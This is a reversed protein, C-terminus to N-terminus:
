LTQGSDRELVIREMKVKAAPLTNRYVGHPIRDETGDVKADQEMKHLKRRLVRHKGYWEEFEEEGDTGATKGIELPASTDFKKM